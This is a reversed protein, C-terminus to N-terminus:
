YRKSVSLKPFPQNIDFEHWKPNAGGEIGKFLITRPAGEYLPNGMAEKALRALWEGAVTSVGRSVYGYATSKDPLVYDRPFDAMVKYEDVTVYRNETPHIHAFGCLTNVRKDLILRQVNFSPRGSVQGNKNLKRESLPILREFAAKMSESPLCADVIYKYKDTVPYGYGLPQGEFQSLVDKLTITPMKFGHNSLNLPVKSGVIFLRNRNQLSGLLVTNHFLFYVLPYKEQISEVSSRILEPAKSYAQPVTELGFIMPDKEKAFDIINKWCSCRPDSKWSGPIFSNQNNNSFPACPPNAFIFDVPETVERWKSFPVVPMDGFYHPNAKIVELGYPKEDECHAIVDFHRKVGVSFSGAYVYIALAKM